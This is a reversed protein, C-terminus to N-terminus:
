HYAIIVEYVHNEELKKMITKQKMQLGELRM